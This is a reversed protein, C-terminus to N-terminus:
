KVKFTVGKLSLDFIETKRLWAHCWLRMPSLEEEEMALTIGIIKRGNVPERHGSLFLEVAYTRVPESSDVVPYEGVERDEVAICEIM